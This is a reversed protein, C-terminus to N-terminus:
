IVYDVRFQINDRDRLLGIGSGGKLRRADLISYDVTFRFPDRVLTVGPQYVFAGVWDYFVALTPNVQGGRYSTTLLLTQLFSTAPQSVMVPELPVGLQPLLTDVVPLVERDPNLRGDATFVRTGAANRIHKIFFQTSLFFTNSPNLFRLWVNADWGVLLNVSDRLRRGGTTGRQGFLFPDFQYQTYAPEDKFYAAESRLVSYIQPIAFTTTAGFVQVRPATLHVHVPSGCNNRNPDNGRFPFRPDLPCPRGDDFAQLPIGRVTFLQAAPLDFYTNLYAVSFTADGWNFVFRAGGRADDFTRKPGFTFTRVETRPAGFSPLTWPSGPPISPIFGVKNDIALYGELFADTLPGVSGVRCQARLMDLPVRREDLPILFGGFSSDLPNIHDLLQFVDSEGWSLVQRGLRLFFRGSSGEIYAQFLRERHSAVRRLHRRAAAIDPATQNIAPLPLRLLFDLSDATAYEKPGWDYVGDYEGRFTLHYGVNRLRFPLDKLLSLPGVGEQILRDLRHDLEAEAFFRNQRLHGAASFPFTASTSPFIQSGVRNPIGQHTDETGIRANVYTRVGLKITGERDLSVAWAPQGTGIAVLLAGLGVRRGCRAM